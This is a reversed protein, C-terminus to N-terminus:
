QDAEHWRRLARAYRPMVDPMFTGGPPPRDVGFVYGPFDLGKQIEWVRTHAEPPLIEAPNGVAIWGIPVLADDPLVTRLHVVANIRVEARRGVRAGNFITAGTAIFADTAITCGTLYSHPGVLVNDGITVGDRAVGRIVAADM